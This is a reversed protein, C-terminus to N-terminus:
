SGSEYENRNIYVAIGATDFGAPAVAAVPVRTHHISDFKWSFKQGQNVFTVTEGCEIAVNKAQALDVVRYFNAVPVSRGYYSEGTPFTSPTACAVSALSAMAALVFIQKM